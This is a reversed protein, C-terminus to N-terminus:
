DPAVIRSTEEASGPHLYLIYSNGWRSPYLIENEGTSLLSVLKDTVPGTKEKIAASFSALGGLVVSPPAARRDDTGIQLPEDM